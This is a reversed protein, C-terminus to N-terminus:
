PKRTFGCRDLLAAFRPDTRYSDWKPDVPLYILHVDRTVYAKDLLEFVAEQEGLGAHVLAMAYPPVYRELSDAELKRLVERAERTRGTKALLYGILSSAKSNNGSFRAADKLSEFALDTKGTQAYAQGLQVYGIWFTSDMLVARRAHEIAAPYQRAQFAVQSSLAYNVPELPELERARRMEAEAEVQRGSQSLAHGLTRYEAANSPDGIRSLFQEALKPVHLSHPPTAALQGLFAQCERTLQLLWDLRVSLLSAAM